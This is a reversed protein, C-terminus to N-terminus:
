APIGFLTRAAEGTVQVVKAVEEGRLLAITDAVHVVHAPENRKGRVPQPSLYPCDTETLIRNLPIHRAVEHLYENNKYTLTGGLSIYMGLDVATQAQDITGSFCHLMGPKPPMGRDRWEALMALIDDLSDRAHICVPLGTGTALDLQAAFMERQKEKPAWDRYYDLGIEGIAVVKPHSAIERLVAIDEMTSGSTNNPHIGVAAYVPDYQEALAISIRSSEVDTGATLIAQVGATQARSVVADRDQEFRNGDLHAHADVLFAM